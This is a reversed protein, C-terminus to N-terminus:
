MARCNLGSGAPRVPEQHLVQLLTDLSTGGKFPPRGTLMEYLIAGLAYVDAAAASKGHKSTPRNPLWTVPTGLVEDSHSRAAKRM